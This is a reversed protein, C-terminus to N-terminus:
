GRGMDMQGTKDRSFEEYIKSALKEIKEPRILRRSALGLDGSSSKNIARRIAIFEKLNRQIEGNNWIARLLGLASEQKEWWSRYDNVYDEAYQPEALSSGHWWDSDPLRDKLLM